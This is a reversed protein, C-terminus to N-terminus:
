AVAATELHHDNQIVEFMVFIFATGFVRSLMLLPTKM